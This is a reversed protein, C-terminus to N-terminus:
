CGGRHQEIEAPTLRLVKAAATHDEPLPQDLEDEIERIRDPATAVMRAIEENSKMLQQEKERFRISKDLLRLVNKKVPEALDGSSEVSARRAKLDDLSVEGLDQANEIAEPKTDATPQQAQSLSTTPFMLLVLFFTLAASWKTPQKYM